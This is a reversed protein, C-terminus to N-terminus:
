RFVGHGVAISSTAGQSVIPGGLNGIGVCSVPVGPPIVIEVKGELQLASIIEQIRIVEMLESVNGGESFIDGVPAGAEAQRSIIRSAIDKASLGTRLGAGTLLLPPPLPTLPPKATKFAGSVMKLVSNLSTSSM